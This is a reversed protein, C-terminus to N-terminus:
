HLTASAAAEKAKSEAAVSDMFQTRQSMREKVLGRYEHTKDNPNLDQILRASTVEYQKRSEM